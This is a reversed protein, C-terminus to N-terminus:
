GGSGSRAMVVLAYVNILLLGGLLLGCAFARQRAPFLAQWGAAMVIGFPVLLPFFFRGQPTFHAWNYRYFVGVVFLAFLAAVGIAAAFESEKREQQGGRQRRRQRWLLALGVATAAQVAALVVYIAMPLPRQGGDFLGWFSLWGWVTVRAAYRWPTVGQGSAALAAYGPIRDTWMQAAAAQRLPDGYLAQNRVFWWGIVIASIGLVLGMQRVIASTRGPGRRRHGAWWLAVCATPLLGLCTVKSGVGVAVWISLGLVRRRDFGHRLGGGMAALAGAAGLAALNENTVAASLSVFLPVGAVIGAATLAASPCLFERASRFTLWVVGAGLVGSILRLMLVAGDQGLLPAAVAYVVAGFLHYLPPHASQYYAFTYPPLTRHAAMYAIVALHNGEDPHFNSWRAANAGVPRPVRVAWLASLTLFTVLLAILPISSWARGSKGSAM